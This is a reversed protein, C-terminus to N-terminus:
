AGVDKLRVLNRQRPLVDERMHTRLDEASAVNIVGRDREIRGYRECLMMLEVAFLDTGEVLYDPEYASAEIRTVDIQLGEAAAESIASAAAQRIQAITTAHADRRAHIRAAEAVIANIMGATDVYLGEGTTVISVLPQIVGLGPTIPLTCWYNNLGGIVHRGGYEVSFHCDGELCHQLGLDRLHSRVGDEVVTLYDFVTEQGSLDDAPSGPIDVDDSRSGVPVDFDIHPVSDRGGDFSRSSNM